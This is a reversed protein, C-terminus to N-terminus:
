QAAPNVGVSGLDPFNDTAPNDIFGTVGSGWVMFFKEQALPIYGGQKQITEDIDGWMSAQKTIDTTAYAADIAKNVTPDQYYGYDQGNSAATLNVRSDFLPPIDTSASPWDAGWSGWVVDYKSANAPNQIVDYYTTTLENLTTNFGGADWGAKLAAAEKETTPTPSRRTV